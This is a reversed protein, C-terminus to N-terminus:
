AKISHPFLLDYYVKSEQYLPQLYDPLPRTSTPQQQFGTSKHVNSYWYKAWVGDEPKPGAPWQLMSEYFPITLAECLQSLVKTPNKLIEASDLVLCAYNKSQLFQFLGWQAAIGIDDMTVESRVQAYSSIIQRPDRIYIINFTRSLFSTDINLLHHTMQKLFVVEKQSPDHLFRHMVTDGDQEQSQLIEDRGPHQIGSVRLYHAYLPEDVATCDPRQAFAYM